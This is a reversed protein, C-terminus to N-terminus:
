KRAALWANYRTLDGPSAAATITTGSQTVNAPQAAGDARTGVNVASAANNTIAVNNAQQRVVIKTGTDPEGLGPPRKAATYLLPQLYNHTITVNTSRAFSIGNPMTGYIQNDHVNWTDGDEVFIGQVLDGEGRYLLNGFISVNKSAFRPTDTVDDAFQIFDPHGGGATHFSYETNNSVTSNSVGTGLIGDTQVDHITNHDITVGDVSTLGVGSGLCSLTSNILKMNAGANLSRFHVGVGALTACSNGTITLGDLTINHAGTWAQVGYQATASPMVVHLNRFTLFASANANIETVTVNAGPAPEVVVEGTKVIYWLDLAYTGSSLQVHDGPHAAQVQRQASATDTATLTAAASISPAFLGSTAALAALLRTTM